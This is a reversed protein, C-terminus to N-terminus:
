PKRYVLIIDVVNQRSNGDDLWKLGDAGFFPEKAVPGAGGELPIGALDIGVLTRTGNGDETVAWAQVPLFNGAVTRAAYPERDAPIPPPTLPFAVAPPPVTPNPPAAAAAAIATDAAAKAAQGGALFLRWEPGFDHRYSMMLRPKMAPLAAALADAVEARFLDGGERAKYNLTLIVDSITTLDFQPEGPMELRFRGIVGCNEFPLYRADQLSTEFLGSDNLGSSTIISQIADFRVEPAASLDPTRRVQHSLMTLKAHVPVQPGTVCPLNLTLSTIRRDFLGPLDRDFLWEPLAFECAGTAMLDVLAGPDLLALSVSRRLEYTRRNGEVYAAELQRLQLGLTEGALLGQKQGDWHGFHIFDADPRGLEDAFAAQAKKALDLGLEYAQHHLAGLRSSMWSYLKDNSFKFKMFNLVENSQETQRELNELELESIAVGIEAGIIQKDIQKLEEAAMAVQHLHEEKRRDGAATLGAMTSSMSRASALAGMVNAMAGVVNGIRIAKIMAPPPGIHMDLWHMLSSVGALISQHSAFTQSQQLLAIQKGESEILPQRAAYAAMRVEVAKRNQNLAEVQARAQERQQVRVNRMANQLGIEHQGRLQAMQEGDNKEIAALVAAGFSKVEGAFQLAKDLLYTFRYPARPAALDALVESIDLGAARARVLLGPDVRAAFLPLENATGDITLCRRIYTLRTEVVDYLAMLKPNRPICFYLAMAGRLTLPSSHTAGAVLDYVALNNEVAVAANSFDDLLLRIQDYTKPTADAKEVEQPERGLLSRAFTYLQTAEAISERTNRRFLKDGWEILIEVYTIFTWLMYGSTRLACVGHPDFPDERWVAIQALLSQQQAIQQPTTATSLLKMLAQIPGEPQHAHFPNLMWCRSPDAPDDQNTPDFIYGVWKLAREYQGQARLAEAVRMPVHFFKEWFYVASPSGYTFDMKEVPYIPRVAAAPAYRAQFGDDFVRQQRRLFLNPPPPWLNEDKPALLGGVGRANLEALYIATGPITFSTFRYRQPDDRDPKAFYSHEADEFFFADPFLHHDNTQEFILEYDTPTSDLLVIPGPPFDMHGHFHKAYLKHADQPSTRREIGQDFGNRLKMADPVTYYPTSLWYKGWFDAPSPPGYAELTVRGDSSLRLGDEYALELYGRHDREWEDAFERRVQIHLDGGAPLDPAARFVYSSRRMSAPAFDLVADPVPATGYIPQWWIENRITSWMWPDNPYLGAIDDKSSVILPYQVLYSMGFHVDPPGFYQYGTVAQETTDEGLTLGYIASYPKLTGTKRDLDDLLGPGCFRGSLIKGPLKRKPTWKGARLSMHNFIIEYYAEDERKREIFTPWIVQVRRNWFVMMLHDGDIEQEIPMWATWAGTQKQSRHFYRHPETRTRGIVHLADAGPSPWYSQTTDQCFARIDLRAVDAVKEIYRVYADEIREDSLEGQQLEEELTAFFPTKDLRLSEVLYSEPYLFLERAGGWIGFNGMWKWQRVQEDGFRIGTELGLFIRQIFLQVAAIALALRSTKMCTSMEVDVLFHEYLRDADDLSAKALLYDVLRDRRTTRLGNNADRIAKDWDAEDAFRSRLSLRAEDPLEATVPHLTFRIAQTFTLGWRGVREFIRATALILGAVSDGGGLSNLHALVAAIDGLGHVALRSSPLLMLMQANVVPNPMATTIELGDILEKLSVGLLTRLALADELNRWRMAADSQMTTPPGAWFLDFWKADTAAAAVGPSPHLRYADLDEVRADLLGLRRLRAVVLHLEAILIDYNTPPAIPTAPVYALNAAPILIDALSANAGILNTRVFELLYAVRDPPIQFLDSYAALAAERLFRRLANPAALTAIAAKIEMETRLDDDGPVPPSGAARPHDSRQVADAITFGWPPNLPQTPFLIDVYDGPDFPQSSNSPQTAPFKTHDGAAVARLIAAEASGLTGAFDSFLQEIRDAQSDLPAAAPMPPESLLAHYNGAAGYLRAKVGALDAPQLALGDGEGLRTLLYSLAKASLGSAALWRSFELLRIASHPTWAAQAPALNSVWMMDEVSLGIAHAISNFRYFWTLTDLDLNSASMWPLIYDFDAPSMALSDRFQDIESASLANSQTGGLPRVSALQRNPVDAAPALALLGAALGPGAKSLLEAEFFDSATEGRYAPIRGFWAILEPVPRRTDRKLVQLGSLKALCGADLPDGATPPGAMALIAEDVEWYTWGLARRLRAIRHIRDAYPTTLPPSITAQSLDCPKDPNFVITFIVPAGTAHRVYETRLIDLLAEYSLASVRLIEGVTKASVNVGNWYASAGGVPVHQGAIIDFQLDNLGLIEVAVGGDPDWPEVGGAMAILEARSVGMARLYARMQDLWLNYPLTWPYVSDLLLGSAYAPTETVGFHEGARLLEPTQWGTQHAAASLDLTQVSAVYELTELVLDIHPLLTHSNECTLELHAIDARREMLKAYGSPGDVHVFDRELWHLLETLYAAPSYVSRCEVCACSDFSGFLDSLTPIRGDRVDLPSASSLEYDPARITYTIMSTIQDIAGAGAYVKETLTPDWGQTLAQDNLRVQGLAIVDHASAIGMEMLGAVVDPAMAPSTMRSLRQTAQLAEYRDEDILVRDPRQDGDGDGITFRESVPTTFMNFDRHERLTEAALAAQGPLSTKAGMRALFAETPYQAFCRDIIIEAFAGAPDDSGSYRAPVASATKIVAALEDRRYAAISWPDTLPYKAKSDSLKDILPTHFEALAATAQVAIVRSKEGASLIPSAMVGARLQEPNSSAEILAMVHRRKRIGSVGIAALRAAVPADEAGADFLVRQAVAGNKLKLFDAFAVEATKGLDAVHWPEPGIDGAERAAALVGQDTQDDAALLSMLAYSRAEPTLVFFAPLVRTPDEGTREAFQRALDAARRLRAQEAASLRGARSLSSWQEGTLSYLPVLDLHRAIRSMISEFLPLTAAPDGIRLDLELPSSPNTARASTALWTTRRGSADPMHAEVTLAGAPVPATIGIEYRAAATVSQTDLVTQGVLSHLIVRLDIKEGLGERSVYALGGRVLFKEPVPMPPAIDDGVLDVDAEIPPSEILRSVLATGRDPDYGYRVSVGGVRTVKSLIRYNVVFRGDDGVPASVGLVVPPKGPDTVAVVEVQGGAPLSDRITIRGRALMGLSLRHTAVALLWAIPQVAAAIQTEDLFARILCARKGQVATEGPIDLIGLLIGAPCITFEQPEGAGEANSWIRLTTGTPLSHRGPSFWTARTALLIRAV